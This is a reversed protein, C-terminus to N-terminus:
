WRCRCLRVSFRCHVPIRAMGSAPEGQIAGGGLLLNGFDIQRHLLNEVMFEAPGFGGVVARKGVPAFRFLEASCETPM